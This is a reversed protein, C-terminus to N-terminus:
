YVIMFLVYVTRVITHLVWIQHMMRLELYNSFLAEFVTDKEKKQHPSVGVRNPRTPVSGPGIM